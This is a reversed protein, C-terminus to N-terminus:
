GREDICERVVYQPSNNLSIYIRGIYEGIIGLMLMMMGGIFMIAAMLSSFGIVVNPDILKRIITYIGYIFGMCAALAGIFTAIRLPKISFATFGNFWLALLKGLTYGSSGIERERHNVDVNAIKKTTRLVLGIVYPYPNTYRVMEDIIFRRVAFYSSVYLDKAKGLMVRAMLENVKSGFNRFASHQKHKYRAYVADYGEELKELLKGVEDAPTQGDDDLCVVIDGHVYHFGAMLAAHQGFNRALNVGCVNNKEKCIRKIEEFTDDPSSDNVLVIEYEYEKMTEMAANIEEVVKGITRSSNYCPIVFSVLKSM